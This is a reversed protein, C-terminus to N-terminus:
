TGIWLSGDSAALFGLVETDPPDTPLDVHRWTQGNYVSAGNSSGAWLFGQRDVALGNVLSGLGSRWDFVRFPLWSDPAAPLSPPAPEVRAPSPETPFEAAHAKTFGVSFALLLLLGARSSM